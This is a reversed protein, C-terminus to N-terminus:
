FSVAAIADTRGPAVFLNRSMRVATALGKKGSEIAGRLQIGRVIYGGTRPVVSDPGLLSALHKRFEAPDADQCMKRAWRRYSKLAEGCRVEGGAVTAGDLWVQVSHSAADFRPVAPVARMQAGGQSGDPETKRVARCAGAVPHADPGALGFFANRLATGGASAAGEIFLDAVQYREFVQKLDDSAGVVRVKCGKPAIRKHLCVLAALGAADMDITESLDVAIDRAELALKEFTPKAGKAFANDFRGTVKIDATTM